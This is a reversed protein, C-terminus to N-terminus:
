GVLSSFIASIADSETLAGSRILGDLMMRGGTDFAEGAIALASIVLHLAATEDDPYDRIVAAVALLEEVMATAGGNAHTGPALVSMQYDNEAYKREVAEWTPEGFPYLDRKIPPEDLVAEDPGSGIMRHEGTTTSVECWGDVCAVFDAGALRAADAQPNQQGFHHAGHTDIWCASPDSDCLSAFPRDKYDVFSETPEVPEAEVPTIQSKGLGAARLVDNVASVSCGVAWSLYVVADKRAKRGTPSRFNFAAVIYERDEKTLRKAM